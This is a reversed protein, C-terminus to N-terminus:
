EKDKEDDKEDEKDEEAGTKFLDEYEDINVEIKADEMLQDIKNQAETFDVKQNILERRIEDKNEKFSGIDEESERKDTVKIIHVGFESLVPDSIEGEKMEYAVDEFEKVMDGSSFYGLEGDNDKTGEDTSYEKALKGFEEGKDLKKKVKKATEEDEVLIHQAEIETKMRDYKEKLEEESIEVDESVAEEWLLSFRIADRLADEDEVGQQQLVMEFQDGYEDKMKNVEEDVLEEDVEYKDELVKTTVMEQLVSDGVREKMQNYFEDKTIDGAKSEVVVDPDSKDSGCAALGLIAILITAVTVIKKM